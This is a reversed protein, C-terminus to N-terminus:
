PQTFKLITGGTGCAWGHNADTFHLEFFRTGPISAEKTWTTGGDITKLIYRDDTMYGINDNLFFLDHYSGSGTHIKNWSTGGNITAGVSTSDAVFGHNPNVFFVVGDIVFNFQNGTNVPQWNVGANTTQYLGDHRIIWGTQDDLFFLTQYTPTASFDYLKTWHSGADTTKWISRGAAYATITDVYFVDTIAVDSVVVTDFSAGGDHSSVIKNPGVAFAVNMESGMGMNINSSGAAVGSVIKNWNDGGDTSKYISSDAMAFGTNNIFFIDFFTPLGSIVKKSWGAALTDQEAPPPNSIATTTSKKCSFVMATLLILICPFQIKM